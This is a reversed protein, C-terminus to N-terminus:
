YYKPEVKLSLTIELLYAHVHLIIRIMSSKRFEFCWSSSLAQSSCVALKMKLSKCLIVITYLPCLVTAILFSVINHSSMSFALSISHPLLTVHSPLCAVSVLLCIIIPDGHRVSDKFILGLHVCASLFAESRAQVFHSLSASKLFVLFM